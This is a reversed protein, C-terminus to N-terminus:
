GSNKRSKQLAAIREDIIAIEADVKIARESLMGVYDDDSLRKLPVWSSDLVRQVWPVKSNVVEENSQFSNYAGQGLMGFIGFVLAGPIVNSRSGQSTLLLRIKL